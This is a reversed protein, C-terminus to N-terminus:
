DQQVRDEAQEAPRRHKNGTGYYIENAARGRTAKKSQCAGGEDGLPKCLFNILQKPIIMLFRGRSEVKM